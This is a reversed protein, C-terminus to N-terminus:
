DVFYKAAIQEVTGKTRITMPGLADALAKHDLGSESLGGEPLWYLEPGDLALLDADSALALAKRAAAASPKKTLFAVQLERRPSSSSRM